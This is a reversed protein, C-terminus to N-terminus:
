SATVCLYIDIISMVGLNEFYPTFRNRLSLVFLKIHMSSFNGFTV